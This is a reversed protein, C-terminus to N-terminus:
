FTALQSGSFVLKNEFLSSSNQSPSIVGVSAKRAHNQNAQPKPLNIKGDQISKTVMQGNNKQVSFSTNNTEVQGKKEASKFGDKYSNM